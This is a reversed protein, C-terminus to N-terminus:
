NNEKHIEDSIVWVFVVELEGSLEDIWGYRNKLM